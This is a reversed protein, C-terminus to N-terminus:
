QSSQFGTSSPLHSRQQDKQQHRAAAAIQRRQRGRQHRHSRGRRGGPVGGDPHQGIGDRVSLGAQTRAAGGGVRQVRHHELLQAELALDLLGIRAVPAEGLHQDIALPATQPQGGEVQGQALPQAGGV